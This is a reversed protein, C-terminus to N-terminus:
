GKGSKSALRPLVETDVEAFYCASPHGGEREILEPEEQKCIDKAKWCRTHFRCGFPPNAPSPIDGELLIEKRNDMLWPEPVPAASLLAQTYPHSPSQFIQNKDGTEVIKGLYMVSIRDCIHRVVSLDHSIFLYALGLEKQLDQLLNLIQAQVSVDLASVAEDCVILKPKLALARAICIRQRQGGSFQHPYNDAGDPNLGVMKMLNIVENNWNQRKVVNPHVKWPEKILERVTMRPNLSADPDQFILQIDERLTRMERKSLKALDHGDFYIHGSTLKELGVITRAVTSKGCGSEGVLGLTEGPFIELNIRSVAQIQGTTRRLLDSKIPFSTVLDKVKLTANTKNTAMM